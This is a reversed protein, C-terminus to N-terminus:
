WNKSRSCKKIALYLPLVFFLNLSFLNFKFLDLSVKRLRCELGKVNGVCLTLFKRPYEEEDLPQWSDNM